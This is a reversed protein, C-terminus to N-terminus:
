ERTEMRALEVELGEILKTFEKQNAESLSALTRHAALIRSHNRLSADSSAKISTMNGPLPIMEPAACATVRTMGLEEFLERVAPLLGQIRVTAHHERAHDVVDQITGLFTSDLHTCLSLDLTLPRGTSLEALCADHFAACYTWSADGAISVAASDAATGILVEAKPDPVISQGPAAPGPSGNDLCSEAQVASLLLMTIDDEQELEGRRHRAEDLLDHLFRQGSNEIAGLREAIQGATLARDTEPANCLGDTYMLLRDGPNLALCKQAFRADATLGLAPGTHYIMEIDGSARRLVLPRHGASAVVIRFSQTDLLCYAATVFLGPASCEELLSENLASLAEAPANLRYDHDLMALRHKFLVALMAASVGHGAADAVYAVVHHDGVPVVDYLDGGVNLSPRYVADIALGTVAPAAQPLLARQILEARQLDSEIVEAQECLMRCAEKLHAVQRHLRINGKEIDRHLQERQSDLQQSRLANRVSILLLELTLMPKTIFDFAGLQVARIADTFTGHGTLIIWMLKPAHEHGWQMLELGSMHPMTLDTVVLDLDTSEIVSRASSGDAAQSVEYGGAKSLFTVLLDRISKEDDVVLIRSPRTEVDHEAVETM